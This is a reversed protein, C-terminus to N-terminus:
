RLESGRWIYKSFYDVTVEFHVMLKDKEAEQGCCASVGLLLVGIFM